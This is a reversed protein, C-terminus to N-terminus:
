RVDAYARNISESEEWRVPNKRARHVMAASITMLLNASM